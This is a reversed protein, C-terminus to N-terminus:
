TRSILDWDSWELMVAFFAPCPKRTHLPPFCFQPCRTLKARGGVGRRGLLGKNVQVWGWELVEDWLGQKHQPRRKRLGCKLTVYHKDHWQWEEGVLADARGPQCEQRNQESTWFLVQCAFKNFPQKWVCKGHKEKGREEQIALGDANLEWGM